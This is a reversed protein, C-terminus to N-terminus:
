KTAAWALQKYTTLAIEALKVTLNTLNALSHVCCPAASLGINVVLCTLM